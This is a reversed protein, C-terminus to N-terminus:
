TDEHMDPSDTLAVKGPSPPTAASSEGELDVQEQGTKKAANKHGMASTPLAFLHENKTDSHDTWIPVGVYAPLNLPTSELTYVCCSISSFSKQQLRDTREFFRGDEAEEMAEEAVQEAVVAAVVAM